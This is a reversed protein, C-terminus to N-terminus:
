AIVIQEEPKQDYEGKDVTVSLVDNRTSDSSYFVWLDGKEAIVQALASILESAKM